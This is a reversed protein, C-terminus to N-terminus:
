KPSRDTIVDGTTSEAVVPVVWDARVPRAGWREIVGAMWADTYFAEADAKSRWLYVGIVSKADDSFGFYKRVLGPVGLYAAAVREFQARIASETLEPPVRYTWTVCHM